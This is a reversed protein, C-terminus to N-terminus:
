ATQIIKSLKKAQMKEIRKLVIDRGNNFLDELVPRTMEGINHGKFNALGENEIFHDYISISCREIRGKMMNIEPKKKPGLEALRVDKYHEALEINSYEFVM